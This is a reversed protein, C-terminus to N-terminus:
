VQAPRWGIALVLTIVSYVALFVIGGVASDRTGSSTTAADLTVALGLLLGIVGYILGV